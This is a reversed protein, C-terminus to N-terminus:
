LGTTSVGYEAEEQTFGEFLLQDILGAKSFAQYELYSAAKLAAQEKWDAAIADAGYEADEPEFGEFELQDILGSRSFASFSIYSEAKERANKQSVTEVAGSGEPQNGDLREVCLEATTVGADNLKEFAEFAESDEIDYGDVLFQGFAIQVRGTKLISEEVEEDDVKLNTYSSADEIIEAGLDAIMEKDPYSDLIELTDGLLVITNQFNSLFDTCADLWPKVESASDNPPVESGSNSTCGTLALTIAALGAVFVKIKMEGWDM